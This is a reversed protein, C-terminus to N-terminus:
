KKVNEVAVIVESKVQKANQEIADLYNEGLQGKIFEIEKIFATIEKESSQNGIEQSSLRRLSYQSLTKYERLDKILVRIFSSLSSLRDEYFRISANLNNIAKTELSNENSKHHFKPKKEKINEYTDWFMDSHKIKPETQKCEINPLLSEINIDFIDPKKDGEVKALQVFFGLAKKRVVIVQNEKFNKATKVRNPLYKIKKFIEPYEIRIDEIKNRIKTIISEEENDEPNSNIRKFLESASPIEDQTFVKSDEGLTNHILFMKQSAIEKSKIVDAGKLTPFFNCIYLEDFVKKGIRNIRGIRQIVRTPNWPIDYNIITGARNLNFGESLKDSAILISYNDEQKSKAISADFNKYLTEATKKNLDGTFSFVKNPFANEITEKLHAVTDLYETFVILKRNQEKKISEKLFDILKARKPDSNALDLNDIEKKIKAFLALDSDIDKLFQNKNYFSNIDYIRNNKPAKKDLLEEAFKELHEEITDEDESYIKNILKRDLIYKGNSNEIFEKIKIHAKEFNEISKKFAGFSSEFRKVLLRRMFDYLNRQQQYERNDDQNLDELNLKKEYNFPQYIAGKFEGVEAFYEKIVKDYFESQKENLEFLLEQPDKVKSLEKVETRYQYDNKLDIRNRRILIPEIIQRIENSLESLRNKVKKIDAYEEKFLEFYQKKSKALKEIDNSNHYRSVYALKNFLNEYSKFRAEINDDLTILSKGPVIFLKLLSFIDAPSNNFPTATLLIVIKNRCIMNLYEYDQTDQNRFRHAEDIVVVEIDKGQNNMYEAIEELKGTSRVEWDFLEFDSKYKQWGANANADGILGPPCIIMGRKGINKAIASAIISKGLGVVDAIIVGNYNEIITLAQNVADLQYSYTKYGKDELIRIVQPKIKRQEQLDLYTKLIYAYAEFPTVNAVQSKNNLFDILFQKRANDETIKVSTEWLEDFYSEADETGYDSIEVNFENQKELGAKTLNSSGTIFKTDSIHKLQDNIKFLYLKAHNPELTKRIHLKDELILKLFFEAQEFFDRNDLDENNLAKDLSAFFDDAKEANSVDSNSGAFECIKGLFSDVELGVLIKVTINDQEKLSEYLEKLGSFYFFGVLFKLEKSSTVLQKIRTKLNKTNKQNTIFNNTM